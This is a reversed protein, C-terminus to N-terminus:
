PAIDIIVFRNPMGSFVVIRGSKLVIISSYRNLVRETAKYKEMIVSAVLLGDKDFHGVCPFSEWM